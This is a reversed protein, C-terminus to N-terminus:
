CPPVAVPPWNPGARAGFLFKAYHRGGGPPTTAVQRYDAENAM